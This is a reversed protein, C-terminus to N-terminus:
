RHQRRRMCTRGARALRFHGISADKTRARRAMVTQNSTLEIGVPREQDRSVGIGCPLRGEVAAQVLKPALFALSITMNVQRLSCKDRAAIQEVTTVTGAVLIEQFHVFPGSNAPIPAVTRECLRSTVTPLDNRRMKRQGRFGTERFRLGRSASVRNSHRNRRLFDSCRTSGLGSPPCTPSAPWEWAM